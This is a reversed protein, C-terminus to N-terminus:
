CYDPFLVSSHIDRYYQLVARDVIFVGSCEVCNTVTFFVITDELVYYFLIIVICPGVFM